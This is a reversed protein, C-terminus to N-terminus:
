EKCEEAAGDRLAARKSEANAFSGFLKPMRLQRRRAQEKEAELEAVRRELEVVRARASQLEAAASEETLSTRM